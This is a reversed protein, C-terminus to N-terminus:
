PKVENWDVETSRYFNIGMLKLRAGFEALRRRFDQWNRQESSTWGIEAYSCIRPFAMYEIDDLTKVTETWLPAEVGLIQQKSIDLLTDPRWNYSKKVDIYGAWRYGIPTKSNYKMDMYCFPAYSVLIKNGHRAAKQAFKKHVWFQVVTSPLLDAQAIEDWGIMVKGHRQVIKQVSDIFRLYEQHPTAQSEDGGVHFYRGNYLHSIEGVVRDVFKYVTDKSTCLSSFGVKTGTYLSTPKGSCNLFGYSALAANIHGPMDIEPVIEIYHEAAYDVIQKFDQQTYYGAKGGGVQTQGGIETLQPYSKIQIRWGQDDSLHLHLHNIKFVSLYDILRKVQEVTFFHRSVDLMMGRYSYEPYDIIRGTPLSIIRDQSPKIIKSEDWYPLIQLLTQIGNFLGHYTNSKIKIKRTLIQLIYGEDGLVSDKTRNLQLYIKTGRRQRHNLKLDYGTQKRINKQLFVALKVLTSDQLNVKITTRHDITFPKLDTDQVIRPKPILAVQSLNQGFFNFSLVSFILLIFTRRLM